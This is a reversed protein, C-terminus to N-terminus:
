GQSSPISPIFKGKNGNDKSYMWLDEGCHAIAFTRIAFDGEKLHLTVSFYAMTNLPVNITETDEGLTLYINDNDGPKWTYVFKYPLGNPTFVIGDKAMPEWNSVKLKAGGPLSDPILVTGINCSKKSRNQYPTSAPTPAPLPAATATTVVPSSGDEPWCACLLFSVIALLSFIRFMRVM